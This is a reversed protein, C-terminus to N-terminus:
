YRVKMVKVFFCIMSGNILVIVYFYKILYIYFLNYLIPLAGKQCRLVTKTFIYFSSIFLQLQVHLFYRHTHTHTNCTHASQLNTFLIARAATALGRGRAGGEAADATEPKRQDCTHQLHLNSLEANLM